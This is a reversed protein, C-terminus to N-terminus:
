CLTLTNSWLCFPYKIVISRLLYEYETVSPTMTDCHRQEKNVRESAAMIRGNNSNLIDALHCSVAVSQGPSADALSPVLYIARAGQNASGQGIM